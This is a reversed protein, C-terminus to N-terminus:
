GRFDANGSSNQVGRGARRVSGDRSEAERCCRRHKGQVRARGSQERPVGREELSVLNCHTSIPPPRSGKAHSSGLFCGVRSCRSRTCCALRSEFGVDRGPEECPAGSGWRSKHFDQSTLAFYTFRCLDAPPLLQLVHALSDSTLAMLGGPPEASTEAMALGRGNPSTDEGGGIPIQFEDFRSDM